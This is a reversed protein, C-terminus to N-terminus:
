KKGGQRMRDLMNNHGRQTKPMTPMTPPTADTMPPVPPKKTPQKKAM